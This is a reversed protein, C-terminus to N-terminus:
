EEGRVSDELLMRVCLGISVEYKNLEKMLKKEKKIYDKEEVELQEKITEIQNM